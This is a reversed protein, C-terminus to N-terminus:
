AAGSKSSSGRAKESGSTLQRITEDGIRRPPVNIIALLADTHDSHSVVRLYNILTKVETRDFFKRGGVMKYPIGARGFATEIRTSLSASRLLVAFDSMRLVGGMLAMCRKIELVM